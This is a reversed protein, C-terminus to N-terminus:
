EPVKRYFLMAKKLIRGIMRVSIVEEPIETRCGCNSCVISEPICNILIDTAYEDALQDIKKM